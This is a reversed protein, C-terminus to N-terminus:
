TLFMVEVKMWLSRSIIVTWQFLSKNELLIRLPWTLIYNLSIAVMSLKRYIRLKTWRLIHFLIKLRSFKWLTTALSLHRLTLKEPSNKVQPLNLVKFYKLIEKIEKPSKAPIPSLLRKISALKTTNKDRKKGSKIPNLKHTCIFSVKQRFLNNNKNAFLSDWGSNYISSMLKWIAEGIGNVNNTNSTDIKKNEIYKAM